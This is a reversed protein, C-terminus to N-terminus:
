LTRMSTFQAIFEDCELTGSGDDDAFRLLNDVDEEQVGMIRLHHQLEVNSELFKKFEEVTVDGSGDSDMDRCINAFSEYADHYARGEM